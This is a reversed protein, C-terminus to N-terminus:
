NAYRGTLYKRFVLLYSHGINLYYNRSPYGLVVLPRFDTQDYIKIDWTTFGADEAVDIIDGHFNVFPRNNDLDRYDKVVWVAYAGDKLVKFSDEFVTRIEELFIDYPLNGMDREDESYQDPNKVPNITSHEKWKRAFEGDVTELLNGYPPSTLQFDISDSEIHSCMNRVDDHIIQHRDHDEIDKKALQVFRDTLEIGISKRGLKEAAESTTGVGLFPDFVLEDKQTYIEIQQKALSIPFCAGHEKQKETRNGPYYEVSKSYQAWESGSLHNLKNTRTDKGKGYCGRCLNQKLRETDDLADTDDGCEKCAFRQRVM